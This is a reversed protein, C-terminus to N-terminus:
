LIDILPAGAEVSAGEKVHIEAVTGGRGARLENQMKMAEVVILPQRAQVADGHAVLVRVIKGPMPATLRQPGNGADRDESRRRRGNITVSVPVTGVLVAWRDEPGSSLTVEHSRGGPGSLREGNAPSHSDPTRETDRNPAVTGVILSLTQPDIRAADVHWRGGDVEIAFGDGLRQVIVRRLRGDIEIEYHL